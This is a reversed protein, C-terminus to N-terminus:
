DKVQPLSLSKNDLALVAEFIAESFTPHPFVANLVSKYSLNNEKALLFQMLLASAEPAVISAGIIKEDKVLIKVFGDIEEETHAKGVASIPFLVKKYDIDSKLEQEVQGFWAVEPMGYIVFPVSKKDVGLNNGTLLYESLRVAQHTASHALMSIGNIDGIAYVDPINTMYNDDVSLYNKDTKFEFDSEPLTPKRGIAVLVLDTALVKGNTLKINKDPLIEAKVSKEIKVRKKKLLREIRVSVEIDALPLIRDQAEILTVDVGLDSFIRSWEVGIAGSGVIVISKPLQKLSLIGDSNYAFVNDVVLNPIDAPETGTALVIADVEYVGVQTVIKGSELRMVEENVIAIDYSKLLLALSKNLKEVILDKAGVIKSFDFCEMDINVGFKSLNKSKYVLNSNHLISKTPICGRNLCTGGLKDKEFLVVSCGGMALKIALAYGAPGGGVIGIKSYKKGM